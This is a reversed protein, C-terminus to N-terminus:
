TAPSKARAPDIMEVSTGMRRGARRPLDRRCDLVGRLHSRTPRGTTWGPPACRRVGIARGSTASASTAGRAPFLLPM